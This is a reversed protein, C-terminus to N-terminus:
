RSAADASAARTKLTSAYIRVVQLDFGGKVFGRPRARFTYRQKPAV